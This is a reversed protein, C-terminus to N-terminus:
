LSIQRFYFISAVVLILFCGNPLWKPLVNNWDEVSLYFDQFPGTLFLKRTLGTCQRLYPLIVSIMGFIPFYPGSFSRIHVGIYRIINTQKENEVVGSELVIPSQCPLPPHCYKKKKQIKQLFFWMANSPKM